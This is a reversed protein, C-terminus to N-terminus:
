TADILLYVVRITLTNAPDGGTFDGANDVYLYLGNDHFGNGMLFPTQADFLGFPMVAPLGSGAFLWEPTYVAGNKTVSAALASYDSGWVLDM